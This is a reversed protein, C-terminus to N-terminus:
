PRDGVKSTRFEFDSIRLWDSAPLVLRAANRTEFKSRKPKLRHAM